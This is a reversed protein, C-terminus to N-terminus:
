FKVRTIRNADMTATCGESKKCVLTRHCKRAEDFTFDGIIRPDTSNNNPIDGQGRVFVGEVDLTKANFVPSGSNGHFCDLNTSFFSPDGNGLVNRDPSIKQPLGRPFGLMFIKESDAIKGSKRYKLPKRDKVLKSFKLVAYDDSSSNPDFVLKTIESCEHVSNESLIIQTQNQSTM